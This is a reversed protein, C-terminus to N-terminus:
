KFIPEILRFYNDSLIKPYMECSNDKVWWVIIGLLSSTLHNLLIEDKIDSRKDVLYFNRILIMIHNSLDELFINKADSLLISKILEKDEMIHYLMHIIRNEFAFDHSFDHTSEKKLNHNSIHDFIDNSISHLVEDKNKYNNYFTGRSLVAEDIIDQTTIDYYRKKSILKCLADKIAKISKEKRKDM